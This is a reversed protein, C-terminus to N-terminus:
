FKVEAQRNVVGKATQVFQFSKPMDEFVVGGIFTITPDNAACEGPVCEILALIRRDELQRLIFQLNRGRLDFEDDNRMQLVIREKSSFKSYLIDSYHLTVAM